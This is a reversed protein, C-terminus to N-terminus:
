RMYWWFLVLWGPSLHRKSVLVWWHKNVWLLNYVDARYATLLLFRSLHGVPISPVVSDFFYTRDDQRSTSSSSCLANCLQISFWLSGVCKSARKRDINDLSFAIEDCFDGSHSRLCRWDVESLRAPTKSNEKKMAFIGVHSPINKQEIM